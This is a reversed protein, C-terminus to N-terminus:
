GSVARARRIESCFFDDGAFDRLKAALTAFENACDGPTRLLFNRGLNLFEEISDFRAIPVVDCILPVIKCHM